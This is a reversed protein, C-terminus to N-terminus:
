HSISHARATLMAFFRECFAVAQEYPAGAAELSLTTDVSFRLSFKALKTGLIKRSDTVLGAVDSTPISQIMRTAASTMFNCGFVAPRRNTLGLVILYALSEGNLSHASKDSSKSTIFRGTFGGLGAGMARRKAGGERECITAAVFTEGSELAGGSQKVLQQILNAL